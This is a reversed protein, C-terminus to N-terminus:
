DRRIPIGGNLFTKRIWQSSKMSKIQRERAVASSPSAHVERWVLTWPGNEHTFTVSGKTDNHELVRRDVDDSSGIYFRGKPNEIIYVFFPGRDSSELARCIPSSGVVLRNIGIFRSEVM